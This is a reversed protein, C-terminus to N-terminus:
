RGLMLLAYDPVSLGTVLGLDAKALQVGGADGRLQRVAETVHEAALRYSYSLLGGHTNVPRSGELRTNGEIVYDGAEGKGCFGLDELQMLCSITFCDYIEAFDAETTDLGSDRRLRDRAIATGPLTLLDPKQTFVDDGTIGETGFGVGRVYVPTRAADQAREATTLVFAVAGDSILCCDPYRLPDSVPPAALYSAMDMPKMNQGRGTRISNERQSVAITGLHEPQLGFEYAYRQAWMAFYSPQGNFGYPKEFALKAPYLDHFAYPGGPRSGWDVGFYCLVYDALGDRLAARAIMPSAVIGAGGYSISADFGRDIGLQGSIWEHPVTTPMIVSDTVIGDIDKPSLGADEVAALVARLTTSRVSEDTRRVSETEGIGIIAIDDDRM